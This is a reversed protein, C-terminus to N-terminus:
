PKRRGFGSSCTESRRQNRNSVSFIHLNLFLLYKTRHALANHHRIRYLPKSCEFRLSLSIPPADYMGVPVTIRVDEVHLAIVVTRQLQVVVPRIRVVLPIEVVFEDETGAVRKMKGGRRASPRPKEEVAREVRRAHM